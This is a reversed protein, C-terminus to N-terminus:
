RPRVGSGDGPRAVDDPSAADRAVRHETRAPLWRAALVAGAFTLSAAVAFTPRMAEVFSRRATGVVLAATRPDTAAIRGAAAISAGIGGTLVGAGGVAAQAQPGVDVIRARFAVNLLSGLVAIGIAGGVERSTDNMASGVGSKEPPLASMISGTSPATALGMGCGLMGHVVMVLWTPTALGSFALAVLGATVLGMGAAVTTNAGFRRALRDSNPAALLIGLPLPLSILGAALPTAGRVFQLYQTMIFFTGFMAFFTLAISSSGVSLAPSRFARVDLLPHACRLEWVVFGVLCGVGITATVLTTASLWGFSPAEIVAFLLAGLGVVTLVAGPVDFRHGSPDRSTPVRLAGAVLAVAAVPVNLLFISGWWYRALLWGGVIPGIAAGIGSCAAWIGIAKGREHPAFVTALVSLTAPMVLAAGVGMVARLVILHWAAQAGSAVLSAVLFVVLGTQLAGKRGFRDGLAGAALLLGGFALAYADVIWQLQTFGADLERSLQPLAVNLVSNGLVVLILSCCLIALIGWRRRQIVHDGTHDSAARDYRHM